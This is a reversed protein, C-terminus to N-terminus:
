PTRQAQGSVFRQRVDGNIVREEYKGRTYRAVVKRWFRVAVQNGQHELIEWRGAFRDFILPVVAAGVGLRRADRSVFFEAMRYDAPPQASTVEGPAIVAFGVPRDSKLLTLIQVRRDGFWRSFHDAPGHGIEGLAPFLGTNPTSLDDLYDRYVSEIWRRDSPLVRADRLSVSV